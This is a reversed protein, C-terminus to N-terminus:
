QKKGVPVISLNEGEIGVFANSRFQEKAEEHILVWKNREYLYRGEGNADMREPHRLPTNTTATQCVVQRVGRDTAMCPAFHLTTAYLEVCLDAPVYFFELADSSICDEKIDWIHGLILVAPEFEVLVESCKHYELANLTTPWGNYYGVQCPIEGYAFQTFQLAEEMEMLAPCSPEYYEEKPMETEQYIYQRMKEVKVYPRVAGYKAFSPDRVDIIRRGPNAQRLQILLEDVQM